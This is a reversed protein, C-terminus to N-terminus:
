RSAEAREPPREPLLISFSSGKNPTSEVEITGGLRQVIQQAISLGLGIGPTSHAEDHRWFREFIHPLAQPTIGIGSDKITLVVAKDDRQESTIAIHGGAPTFHIANNLLHELAEELWRTDVSIRSLSPSLQLRLAIAKQNLARELTVVIQEILVNVSALEFHFPVDSDLKTMTLVMDLLRSLRM